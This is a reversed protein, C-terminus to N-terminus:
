PESHAPVTLNGFFSNYLVISDPWGWHIIVPFQSKVCLSVAHRLPMPWDSTDGLPTAAWDHLRIREGMKGAGTLFATDLDEPTDHGFDHEASSM